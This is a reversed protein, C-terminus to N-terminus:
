HVGGPGLGMQADFAAWDVQDMDLQDMPADLFLEGPAGGSYMGEPMRTHGDQIGMCHTMGQDEFSMPTPVPTPFGGVGQVGGMENQQMAQSGSAVQALAQRLRVVIRPPALIEGPARQDESARECAEWAGMFIGALMKVFPSDDRSQSSPTTGVWWVEYNDSMIEWARRAFAGHPRRRVDQVIQIYAPFPFYFRNFWRFRKTLPCTMIKTDCELMRFAYSTAADRQAETKGASSNSFRANHELLRDKALQGRTTWVTMFHIPNELDLSKFHQEEISEELKVLGSGGPSSGNQVHKALPRLAPNSFDLYFSSHRVYDGLECRMVAFLAESRAQNTPRIKMEPRLDSDSVNLPVMCDWSPELTVTKSQSRGGIRADFLIIAWWLRRRMEAELITCQALTSESQIGIRHAIRITLGLLSSLSYANANPEISVLYFFLATLCDHDTTRIFGCNLLAQQCAFHYRMLLDEKSAAFITQCDDEELSLTSICYISFILAELTPDINTINSAAEIIRPQLSPTHTVKFLPNVNDLYTQWLRFIHVPNPHLTSLDVNMSRSAFLLNEENPASSQDYAKSIQTGRIDDNSSDSDNDPDRFIVQYISQIFQDIPSPNFAYKCKIKRQQCLICALVRQPKSSQASQPPAGASM